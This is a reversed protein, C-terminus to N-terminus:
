LTKPKVAVNLGHDLSFSGSLIWNPFTYSTAITGRATGVAMQCDASIDGGTGIQNIDGFGVGPYSFVGAGFQASWCSLVLSNASGWSPTIISSTTGECSSSAGDDYGRIVYAIALANTLITVSAESGTSIKSIARSRLASYAESSWGSPIGPDGSAQNRFFVVMLDGVVNTPLTLVTTATPGTIAVGAVRLEVGDSYRPVSTRASM